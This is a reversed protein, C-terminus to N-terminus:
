FDCYGLIYMHQRKFCFDSAWRNGKIRKGDAFPTFPSFPSAWRHLVGLSCRLVILHHFVRIRSRLICRSEQLKLTKAGKRNDLIHIFRKLLKSFPPVSRFLYVSIKSTNCGLSNPQNEMYQVTKGNESLRLLLISSKYSAYTFKINGGINREFNGNVLFKGYLYQGAFVSLPPSHYWIDILLDAKLM